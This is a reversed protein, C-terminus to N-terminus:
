WGVAALLQLLLTARSSAEWEWVQPLPVSHVLVRDQTYLQHLKRPDALPAPHHAALSSSGTPAMNTDAPM